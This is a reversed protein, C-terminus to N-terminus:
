NKKIFGQSINVLSFCQIAAATRQEDDTQILEDGAVWCDDLIIEGAGIFDSEGSMSIVKSMVKRMTGATPKRVICGIGSELVITHTEVGKLGETLTKHKEQIEKIKSEFFENKQKDTMEEFSLEQDKQDNKKEM